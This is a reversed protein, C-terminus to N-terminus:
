DGRGSRRVVNSETPASVQKRVGLSENRYGRRESNNVGRYDGLLFKLDRSRGASKGNRTQADFPSGAPPAAGCARTVPIDIHIRRKSNLCKIHEESQRVLSGFLRTPYIDSADYDNRGKLGLEPGAP